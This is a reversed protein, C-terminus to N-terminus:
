FHAFTSVLQSVETTVYLIDGESYYRIKRIQMNPRFLADAKNSVMCHYRFTALHEIPVYALM